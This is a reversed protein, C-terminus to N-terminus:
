HILIKLFIFLLTLHTHKVHPQSLQRFGSDYTKEEGLQLNILKKFFLKQDLLDPTFAFMKISSEMYELSWWCEIDKGQM